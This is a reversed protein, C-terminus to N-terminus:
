GSFLFCTLDILFVVNFIYSIQNYFVCPFSKVELLKIQKLDQLKIFNATLQHLHTMFMLNFFRMM